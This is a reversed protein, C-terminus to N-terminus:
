PTFTYTTNAGFGGPTAVLVTVLGATGVPVVGTLKTGAKNVKVGRARTSGFTVTAGQFDAGIVTFWKGGATPGSTPTISTISPGLYTFTDTLPQPVGAGDAPTTVLVDVAAYNVTAPAIATLSKGSRAVSVQKAPTTGFYVATAGTFGLGTITV